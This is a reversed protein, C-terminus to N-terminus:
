PCTGCGLATVSAVCASDWQVDCCFSDNACVCAEVAADACGSCTSATCCDHEAVGCTVLMTGATTPTPDLTGNNWAGIRVLLQDGISMASCSLGLAPGGAFGCSDDGCGLQTGLVECGTGQYVQLTTDGACAGNGCLSFEVIGDCTATYTYWADAYGVAPDNCGGDEGDVPGDDTAGKTSYANEGDFVETADACNDNVPPPIFCSTTGCSSDVGSFTGSCDGATALSCSGDGACCAGVGCAPAFDGCTGGVAFRGSCESLDVGESCADGTCCAGSTDTAPVATVEFYMERVSEDGSDPIGDPDSYVLQVWQTALLSFDQRSAIGDGQGELAPRIATQGDAFFGEMPSIAMWLLTDNPVLFATNVVIEFDNDGIETWTMDAPLHIKDGVAPGGLITGDDQPEGDPIIGANNYITIRVGSWDGPNGCSPNHELTAFKVQTIIAQSVGRAGCSPTCPPPADCTGFRALAYGADLPDILDDCNVDAACGEVCPDLGLRALIFGTDLPDVQGDSNADGDCLWADCTGSTAECGLTFTDAVQAWFPYDSDYQSSNSTGDPNFDGNDWFCGDGGRPTVGGQPAQANGGGAVEAELAPSGKEAFASGTCIAGVAIAMVLARKSCCCTM